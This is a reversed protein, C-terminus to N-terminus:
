PKLSKEYEAVKKAHEHQVSIDSSKASYVVSAPLPAPSFQMPPAMSPIPHSITSFTNTSISSTTLPTIGGFSTISKFPDYSM